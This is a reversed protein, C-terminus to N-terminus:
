GPADWGAQIEPLVTTLDIGAVYDLMGTFFTGTGVPSPMQDSGDFRVVEAESIFEAVQQEFGTGYATEDFGAHPSNYGGTRAWPEGSSPDALYAMVALTGPDDNFAAATDGGLILPAPGGAVPPLVLVDAVGGDAIMSGPPIVSEVVSSQRNMLCGPPDDFMPLISGLAPASLIGRTGGVVTGPTLLLDGFTEFAETVRDDPFGVEGEVWRDYFDPGQQRLIIDEIWDTGVWGSANFAEMGVCWPTYGDAVMLATLAVMEDWTTPVAYGESAFVDTRYWVLSKLSVRFPAGYVAGDVVGLDGIEPRYAATVTDALEDPLPALVGDRAMEHLIAPQPFLAVDPPDGERVRENIRDAFAASGVYDVEIGTDATFQDLVTRFAEADENLYVGFIRVADPEDTLGEDDGSCAGVAALMLLVVLVAVRRM